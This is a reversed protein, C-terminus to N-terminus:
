YFVRIYYTSNSDVPSLTIVAIGQNPDTTYTVPNTITSGSFNSSKSYEAQLSIETGVRDVPITVDIKSDTAGFSVSGITAKGLGAFDKPSGGTTSGLVKSYMGFFSDPDFPLSNPGFEAKVESINPDTPIPM